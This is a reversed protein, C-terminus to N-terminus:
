PLLLLKGTTRRGQLDEHAKRADTLSYRGGIRVDLKREALADFLEGVRWELEQRTRIYDGSKPRTLFLSGGRNLRQPDIPPVPGSAAGFLALLGRPRLCELSGEYTSAGVGDYVVDVGEGRTFARTAEVFDQETYRIVEDAGAERALREKEPTSVTGIVKAGRAKALQTLLLGVGGAAAHVLVTEGECVEYTSSVLYHATIGQLMVAAATEEAVGEPLKVVVDAPVVARQAYSGPADQWAVRDGVSLGTVESGVEVIRGAGEMGPTYPLPVEYIGSRQYTDIYNVGAAAVDILVERPGPGGVEVDAVDLVEPGGTREIRIATVM